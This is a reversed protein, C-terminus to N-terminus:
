RQVKSLQHIVTSNVKLSKMAQSFVVYGILDNVRVDSVGGIITESMHMFSSGAGLSAYGKIITNVTFMCISIFIM